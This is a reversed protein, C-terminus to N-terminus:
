KSKDERDPLYIATQEMNALQESDFSFRHGGVQITDGHRLLKEKIKENNVLTGNTSNLDKIIVDMHNDLYKSPQLCLEVHQASVAADDLQIDSGTKRGIIMSDKNLPYSRLVVGELSLTLKAM